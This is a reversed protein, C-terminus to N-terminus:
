RVVPRRSVRVSSSESASEVRSAMRARGNAWARLAKIEESMTKSLPYTSRVAELVDETELDKKKAAYASFLGEVIAQELEAGSFGESADAIAGVNVVDSSRGRRVLHIELIARREARTPLDLFFIEDFRGKRMLEPPLDAIRNATAVVFVPKTKDQLWSLFDGFVRKSTGSDGSPGSMGAFAKEIEDVMLVCPACANASEILARVNAESAGVVGAFLAGVNARLMPLGYRRAVLKCVLSKGAGPPGVLLIGKPEPLGFERAKASNFAPVRSELWADLADYGGVDAADTKCYTLAGALSESIILAKEDSLWKADLTKKEVLCRAFLMAAQHRPLGAVASALAYLKEGNGELKLRQAKIFENLEILLEDISPLAMTIVQFDNSLSLPVAVDRAELLILRSFDETAGRQQLVVERALRLAMANTSHIRLFDKLILTGQASKHSELAGLMDPDAGSMVRVPQCM